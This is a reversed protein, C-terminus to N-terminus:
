HRAGRPLIRGLLCACHSLCESVSSILPVCCHISWRILLTLAPLTAAPRVAPGVLWTAKETCVLPPRKKGGYQYIVGCGPQKTCLSFRM